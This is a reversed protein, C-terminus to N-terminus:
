VNIFLLHQSEALFVKCGELNWLLHEYCIRERSSSCAFDLPSNHCLVEKCLDGNSLEGLKTGLFILSEVRYEWVLHLPPFPCYPCVIYGQFPFSLKTANLHLM